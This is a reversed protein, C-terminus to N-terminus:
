RAPSSTTRPGSSSSNPHHALSPGIRHRSTPTIAVRMVESWGATSTSRTTTPHGPVIPITHDPQGSLCQRSRDGRPYPSVAAAYSGEDVDCGWTEVDSRQDITPRVPAPPLPAAPCADSFLGFWALPITAGVVPQPSPATVRFASDFAPAAEYAVFGAAYWGRRAAVDVEGLMAMVDSTSHTELQGQLNRLELAPQGAATHDIRCRVLPTDLRPEPAGGNGADTRRHAASRRAHDARRRAVLRRRRVLVYMAMESFPQHRCQACPSVTEDLALRRHPRRRTRASRSSTDSRRFRTGTSKRSSAFMFRISSSTGTSSHGTPVVGSSMRRSNDQQPHRCRTPRPRGPSRRRVLRSAGPRRVRSSRPNPPQRLASVGTVGSRQPRVEATRLKRGGPLGSGGSELEVLRDTRDQPERSSEGDRQVVSAKGYVRVFRPTWPTMTVLDDVVLAVLENGAAVNRYKRTSLSTSDASTFTVATSSSGSRSWTRNATAPYRRSAPWASRSCIHRGEESFSM